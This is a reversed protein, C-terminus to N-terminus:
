VPIEEFTTGGTRGIMLVSQSQAYHSEKTRVLGPSEYASLAERAARPLLTARPKFKSTTAPMSTYTIVINICVDPSM